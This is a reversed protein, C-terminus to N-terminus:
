LASCILTYSLPQSKQNMFGSNSDRLLFFNERISSRNYMEGITLLFRDIGEILLHSYHIVNGLLFLQLPIILNLSFDMTAFKFHMILGASLKSDFEQFM